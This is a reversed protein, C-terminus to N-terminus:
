TGSESVQVSLASINSQANVQYNPSNVVCCASAAAGNAIAVPVASCTVSTAGAAAAVTVSVIKLVGGDNFWLDQGAYLPLTLASVTISTASLAVLATLTVTQNSINGQICDSAGDSAFIRFFNAVGSAAITVAAIANATILGAVAAGFATVNLTHTALVTQGSLATNANAPATGAYIVLKGANYLGAIANAAANAVADAYSSKGSM